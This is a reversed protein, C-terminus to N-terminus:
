SSNIKVQNLEFSTRGVFIQRSGSLVDASNHFGEEVIAIGQRLM